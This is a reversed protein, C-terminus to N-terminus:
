AQSLVTSVPNSALLTGMVLLAFIVIQGMLILRFFGHHVKATQPNASNPKANVM